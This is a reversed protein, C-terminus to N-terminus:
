AARRAVDGTQLYHRDLQVPGVCETGRPLGPTGAAGRRWGRRRSATPHWSPVTPLFPGPISALFGFLSYIKRASSRPRGFPKHAGTRYHSQRQVRGSSGNNNILAMMHEEDWSRLTTPVEIMDQFWQMGTMVNAGGALAASCKGTVRSRCAAHIAVAASSCATDFLMNPGTRGFYHSNRGSVFSRFGVTGTFAKPGHCGANHEYDFGCFGAYIGIHNECTRRAKDRPQPQPFYGSQEVTQCECQFKPSGPSGHVTGRASQVHLVQPRLRRHRAHLEPDPPTRFLMHADPPRAHRARAAVQGTKLMLGSRVVRKTTDSSGSALPQGSDSECNSYSPMALKEPDAYQLGEM